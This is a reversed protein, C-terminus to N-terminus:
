LDFFVLLASFMCRVIMRLIVRTFVVAVLMQQKIRAPQQMPLLGDVYSSSGNVASYTHGSSQPEGSFICPCRM